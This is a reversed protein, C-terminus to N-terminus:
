TCSSFSNWEESGKKQYEIKYKDLYKDIISGLIEYLGEETKNIGIKEDQQPQLISIQPAVNDVYIKKTIISVNSAKDKAELRLSYEDEGKSELEGLIGNIVSINTQPTPIYIWNTLDSILYSLRYNAFNEDDVTGKITLIGKYYGEDKPETIIAFPPKNDINLNIVSESINNVKDIGTLKVFYKGNLGATDLVGLNTNILLNTLECSKIEIWNQRDKSYSLSFSKINEDIISGYFEIKGGCIYESIVNTSIVPRTFYLVPPTKDIEVSTVCINTNGAKDEAKLIFKHIGSEITDPTDWTYLIKNTISSSINFSAIFVEDCMLSYSKINKDIVSGKIQVIGSHINTLFDPSFQVIPVINDLELPLILYSRNGAKDEAIIRFDFIGTEDPTNWNGLFGEKSNDVDFLGAQIFNIEGQKRFGFEYKDLNIDLIRGQIPITGTVVQNPKPSSIEIIPEKGDVKMLLSVFTENSAKDVAYLSLNYNGDNGALNFIGLVDDNVPNFIDPYKENSIKLYYLLFNKDNVTGIIQEVGKIFSNNEPKTIVAVPPTIDIEIIGYKKATITNNNVNTAYIYYNYIGDNYGAGNWYYTYINSVLEANNILTDIIKNNSCIVITVKANTKIEFKIKALDKRGDNNPSFIVPQNNLLKLLYNPDNELYINIINTAWNSAIDVARIRLSYIGSHGVSDWTAIINTNNISQSSEFILNWKEDKKYEVFYKLFHLDSIIGKIEILDKLKANNTPSTILIKPSKTDLEINRSAVTTNGADDTGFIKLTYTGDPPKVSSNNLGYWNIETFQNSYKSMNEEITKTVLNPGLKIEFDGDSNLPSQANLSTKINEIFIDPHIQNSTGSRYIRIDWNTIKVYNAYPEPINYNGDFYINKKEGSGYFRYVIDNNNKRIVETEWPQSFKNRFRVWQTSKSNTIFNGFNDFYGLEAIINTSTTEIQFQEFIDDETAPNSKPFDIESLKIYIPEIGSCNTIYTFSVNTWYNTGIGKKTQAILYSNSYDQTYTPLLEGTKANSFIVNVDSNFSSATIKLESGSADLVNAPISVLQSLKKKYPNKATCYLNTYEISNSTKFYKAPIIEKTGGPIKWSLHAEAVGTNEFMEYKIPYWRGAELYKSNSVETASQKIVWNEIIPNQMDEIYLRQGDDSKAYFTYIGNTPAYIYGTFRISFNDMAPYLFLPYYQSNSSWSFNIQKENTILVLNTFNFNHNYIETYLGSSSYEWKGQEKFVKYIKTIKNGTRDPIWCSDDTKNIDIIFPEKFEYIRLQKNGNAELKVVRKNGMDAVWCGGEKSIAVVSRPEKFGEVSLIIEGNSNLKVVRNNGYDAVWCSGDITDVSVYYPNKFGGKKFIENGNKDLKVVNMYAPDVQGTEAIWYNSNNPDVSISSPRLYWTKRFIENGNTNLKVISFNWFDAVICSGDNPDVEVDYPWKFGNIRLLENGDYNLKVVQNHGSDSVWCNGNNPDVSVDYPRDFGSVEFLKNGDKKDLKAIKNKGYIIVWCSGDRPDISVGGQIQLHV